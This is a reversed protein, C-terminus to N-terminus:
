GKRGRKRLVAWVAIGAAVAAAAVAGLLIGIKGGLGGNTSSAGSESPEAASEAGSGDTIEALFRITGIEEGNISVRVAFADQGVYDMDTCSYRYTKQAGNFRVYGHSPNEVVDYTCYWDGDVPIEGDYNEGSNSVTLFVEDQLLPQEPYRLTQKIFKYTADYLYRMRTKEGSVACNYFMGPGAGDYYAHITDMLGSRAASLLYQEYFSAYLDPDNPLSHHLEMQMGFGYKEATALFDEMMGEPDKQLPANFSLNPQMLAADFGYEDANQFGAAQYLPIAVCQYSREHLLAVVRKAIEREYDWRSQELTESFFFFGKMEVNEYNGADIREAVRDLYWEIARVCNDVTELKEEVGDGDLDGFVQDSIKPYPMPLYVYTKHSDPLSLKEKLMATAQDVAGYNYSEEFISDLVMEWDSLISPGGDITLKRDPSETRGQVSLFMVSDFMTDVYKGNLDRYGLFPMLSSVSNKVIKQDEPYYGCHVCIIDKPGGLAAADVLGQDPAPKEFDSLAQAESPDSNGYVEIEDCFSNVSVDFTLRVYRARYARDFTLRYEALITAGGDGTATTPIPNAVTGALMYDTGNESLAVEVEIPCYIGASANQLFRTYVSEAARVEGLDLTVVRGFARVFHSWSPSYFNSPEGYKGDTLQDKTGKEEDAYSHENAALSDITYSAGLALNVSEASSISTFLMPCLPFVFCFSLLKILIRGLRRM